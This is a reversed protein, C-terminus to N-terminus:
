SHDQVLKSYWDSDAKIYEDVNVTMPTGDDRLIVM